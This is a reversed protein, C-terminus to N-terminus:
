EYKKIEKEGYSCFDTLLIEINHKECQWYVLNDVARFVGNKRYRCNACRIIEVTNVKNQFQKCKEEVNQLDFYYYREYCHTFERRCMGSHICDKCTAM